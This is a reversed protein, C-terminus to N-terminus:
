PYYALGGPLEVRQGASRGLHPVPLAREGPHAHPPLCYRCRMASAVAPDSWIRHEWAPPRQPPKGEGREAPEHDGGVSGLGGCLRAPWFCGASASDRHAECEPYTIPDTMEARDRRVLYLGSM